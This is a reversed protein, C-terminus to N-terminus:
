TINKRKRISILHAGILLLVLLLVVIDIFHTRSFKYYILETSEGETKWIYDGTMNSKKKFTSDGIISLNIDYEVQELDLDDVDFLTKGDLIWFSNQYRIFELHLVSDQYFPYVPGNITMYYQEEYNGDFVIISYNDYNSIVIAIEGTNEDVAFAEIDAFQFSKESEASFSIEDMFDYSSDAYVNTPICSPIILLIMVFLILIIGIVSKKVNMVM